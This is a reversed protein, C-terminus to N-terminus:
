STPYSHISTSVFATYSQEFFRMYLICKDNLYWLTPSTDNVASNTFQSRLHDWFEYHLTTQNIKLLIKIETDKCIQLHQRSNLNCLCTKVFWCTPLTSQLCEGCTWSKVDAIFNDLSTLFKMEKPLLSWLRPASIELFM